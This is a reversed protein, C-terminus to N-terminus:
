QEAPLESAARQAQDYALWGWKTRFLEQEYTLGLHTSMAIHTTDTAPSPSQKDQQNSSAQASPIMEVQLQPSPSTETNRYAIVSINGGPSPMVNGPLTSDVPQFAPDKRTPNAAAQTNRGRNKSADPPTTASEQTQQKERAVVGNPIAAPGDPLHSPRPSKRYKSIPHPSKTRATKEGLYTTSRLRAPQDIYTKDYGIRELIGFAMAIAAFGMAVAFM